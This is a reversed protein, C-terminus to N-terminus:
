NLFMVNLSASVFREIAKFVQTVFQLAHRKVHEEIQKDYSNEDDHFRDWIVIGGYNYSQIIHPLVNSLHYYDQPIYGSSPAATASGLLGM